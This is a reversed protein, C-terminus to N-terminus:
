AMLGSIKIASALVVAKMTPLPSSMKPFMCADISAASDSTAIMVQKQAREEDSFLSEVERRRSDFLTTSLLRGLTRTKMPNEERELSCINNWM